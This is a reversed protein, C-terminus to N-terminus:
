AEKEYQRANLSTPEWSQMALFAMWLLYVTSFVVLSLVVGKLGFVYAGVINFLMGLLATCIKAFTLTSSRLESMLKLSLFQGAAFIGGALVVWPLLYSIARYNSAVLIQFIHVHALYAILTGSITVFLSLLTIKWTLNHVNANRMEDSADGSRQFLIPALFSVALGTAMAIPTYGLQFLVAYYGVDESSTFADLAWRDSSQQAWTFVGWLSFPLSYSLIRGSWREGSRETLGKNSLVRRLFLSQSVTMLLSSIAYGIIVAIALSGLFHMAIVALLIKLWADMGRHLAVIARQRAANQMGSLASNLGNLLSFVLVGVVLGQWESLGMRFLLFLIGIGLAIAIASSCVMIWGATKLYGGLDGKESAISYFRSIGNTVGGMVVQNILGAVTLSLALHGYESPQLRETLVRVLALSGFVAAIQGSVLWGGEKVLRTYRKNRLVSKLSPM